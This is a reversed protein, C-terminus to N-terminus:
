NLQQKIGMVEVLPTRLPVATVKAKCTQGLEQASSLTAPLLLVVALLLSSKNLPVSLLKRGSLGWKM